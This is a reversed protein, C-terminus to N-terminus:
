LIKSGKSINEEALLPQLNTYHCLKKMEEKTTASALPIIHDIHWEGYNDWDMWPEFQSEIHKMATEYDCGLLKESGGNKKWSQSKFAKYTRTGVNKRFKFLPDTNAKDRQWKKQYERIKEQNDKRYQKGYESLKERNDKNYKKHREGISEKNNQYYQRSNVRHKEVRSEKNDHYYQRCYERHKEKDKYPM